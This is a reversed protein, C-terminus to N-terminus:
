IIMSLVQQNLEVIDRYEMFDFKCVPITGNNVADMDPWFLNTGMPLDYWLVKVCHQDLTTSLWAIHMLNLTPKPRIMPVLSYSVETGELNYTDLVSDAVDHM